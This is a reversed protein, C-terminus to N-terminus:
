RSGHNKHVFHLCWTLYILYFFYAELTEVPVLLQESQTSISLIHINYIYKAIEIQQEFKVKEAVRFWAEIKFSFVPQVTCCKSGYKKAKQILSLKIQFFPFMRREAINRLTRPQYFFLSFCEKEFMYRVTCISAIQGGVM